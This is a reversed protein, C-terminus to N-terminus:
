QAIYSTITVDRGHCLRPGFRRCSYSDDILHLRQITPIYQSVMATVNFFCMKLIGATTLIQSMAALVGIAVVAISIM